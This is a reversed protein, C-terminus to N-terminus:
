INAKIFELTQKATNNKYGYIKHFANIGTRHCEKCLTVGNDIEYRLEPRNAWNEIHHAELNGGIKGCRQCTYNDRKLILKIWKKNELDSRFRNKNLEREKDTLGSKYNPNSKGRNNESYCKRCRKNADWNHWSISGKHGKPCIYNLKQHANIYEETLLIYGEKMFEKTIFENTHKKNGSCELCRKGSTWNNWSITGKHGEPCIYELKQSNNKYEGTLLTYGEKQFQDRIFEITLKKNM